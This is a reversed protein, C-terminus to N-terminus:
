PIFPSLIAWFSFYCNCGDCVMDRSCCLPHDHNKTCKPLIIIDGPTKKEITINENEVTNPSSPYFPLFNGLIVFFILRYFKIDWSDYMMHDQNIGHTVPYYRWTNENKGFKLKRPWYHPLLAFFSRFHFFIINTRASWIQTLM